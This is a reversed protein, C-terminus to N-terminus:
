KKMDKSTEVMKTDWKASAEQLVTTGAAAGSTHKLGGPVEMYSGPGLVTKEGGEPAFWFSGSIVVLKTTNTHTHIPNDMSQSFKIFAGYAGKSMDGWLPAVMIGPPGEKMENWKIHDAPWVTAEKKAKKDSAHTTMSVTLMGVLLCLAFLLARKM